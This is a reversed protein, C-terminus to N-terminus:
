GAEECGTRGPLVRRVSASGTRRPCRATCSVLARSVARSERSADQTHSLEPGLDARVVRGPDSVATM